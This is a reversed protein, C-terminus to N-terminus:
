DEKTSGPKVLRLILFGPERSLKEYDDPYRERMTEAPLPEIVQGILFGAGTAYTCLASLPERWFRVPQEGSPTRWLDTELKVEFYSSGKRLWDMTPHQTSVVLAGGARLVRFFEAFATARDAAYHIALACVIIDFAEDEYPLPEGLVACDIQVRDALRSRALDRMVLSADFATVDAGRAVLEQAYFGPGCAADLVRCGRVSGLAAIVAPRDYHANYPSDAAHEQYDGGM